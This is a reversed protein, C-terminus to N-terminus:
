ASNQPTNVQTTICPCHFYARPTVLARVARQICTWYDQWDTLAATEQPRLNFAGLRAALFLPEGAGGSKRLFFFFFFALSHTIKSCDLSRERYVEFGGKCYSFFLSIFSPFITNVQSYRCISMRSHREARHGNLSFGFVWTKM